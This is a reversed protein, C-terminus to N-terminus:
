AKEIWLEMLLKIAKGGNKGNFGDGLLIDAFLCRNQGFEGLMGNGNLLVNV